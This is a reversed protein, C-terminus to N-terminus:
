DDNVEVTDHISKVKINEKSPSLTVLRDGYRYSVGGGVEQILRDRNAHIAELLEKKADAEAESLTMREDRADTYKDAAKEIAPIHLAEVGEGKLPIETQKPKKSKKSKAM